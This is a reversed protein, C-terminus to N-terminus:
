FFTLTNRHHAKSYKRRFVASMEPYQTDIFTRLDSFSEFYRGDIKPTYLLEDTETMTTAPTAQNSSVCLQLVAITAPRNGRNTESKQLDTLQWNSFQLRTGM